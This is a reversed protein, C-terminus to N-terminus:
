ATPTWEDICKKNCLHKGYGNQVWGKKEFQQRVKMGSKFYDSVGCNDCIIKTVHEVAM